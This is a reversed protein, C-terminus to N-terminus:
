FSSRDELIHLSAGFQGLQRQRKNGSSTGPSFEGSNQREMVAKLADQICTVSPNDKDSDTPEESGNTVVFVNKVRGGLTAMEAKVARLRLTRLTKILDSLLDPRDDCCLSARILLRGEETCSDVSLEDAESPVPSGEALDAAHRKLEKVYEIVEALLSAKDTKTTSPLLSRLTALHTNIRERRKREAESHSKSAALAKAEVIEQATMKCSNTMELAPSNMLVPQFVHRHYAKEHENMSSLGAMGPIMHGHHQNDYSFQLPAGHILERFGSFSSSSSGAQNNAAMAMMQDRGSTMQHHFPAVNYAPSVTWGPFPLEPVGSRAGNGSMSSGAQQQQQM